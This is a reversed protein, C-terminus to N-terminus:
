FPFPLSGDSAGPDRDVLGTFFFTFVIGGWVSESGSLLCGKMEVWWVVM